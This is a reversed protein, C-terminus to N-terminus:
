AGVEYYKWTNSPRGNKLYQREAQIRHGDRRLSSIVSTYKLAIRSLEFNFAGGPRQILALVKGEQTAGQIKEKPPLPHQPLRERGHPDLGAKLYARAIEEVASLGIRHRFRLHKGAAVARLMEIHYSTLEMGFYAKAFLEFDTKLTKTQKAPATAHAM